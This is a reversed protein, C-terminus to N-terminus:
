VAGFVVPVKWTTAVLASSEDLVAVAVTVTTNGSCLRMRSVFSVAVSLLGAHDGWPFLM